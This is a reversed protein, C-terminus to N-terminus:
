EKEKKNKTTSRAKKPKTAPKPEEKAEEEKTEEGDSEEDNSDEGDSDGEAVGDTAGETEENPKEENPKEGNEQAPTDETKGEATIGEMPDNELQKKNNSNVFAISGDKKMWKFLLTDEIWVPAEKVIGLDKGTVSFTDGDSNVFTAAVYCIVLMKNSM